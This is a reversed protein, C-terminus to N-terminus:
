YETDAFPSVADDNAVYEGMARSYPVLPQKDVFMGLGQMSKVTGISTADAVAAALSGVVWGDEVGHYKKLPTKSLLYGGGLAILVQSALNGMTGMDKLFPIFQPLTRGAIVGAGGSLVMPVMSKVSSMPNHHYRRHRKPNSHYKKSHKKHHKRM